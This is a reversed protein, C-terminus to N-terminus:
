RNDPCAMVGSTGKCDVAWSGLHMDTESSNFIDTSLPLIWFTTTLDVEFFRVVELSLKDASEGLILVRERLTGTSVAMFEANSFARTPRVTYGGFVLQGLCSVNVVGAEGDIRFIECTGHFLAFKRWSISCFRDAPLPPSHGLVLNAKEADTVGPSTRVVRCVEQDGRFCVIEMRNPVPTPPFVLGELHFLPEEEEIIEGPVESIFVALKGEIDFCAAEKIEEHELIIETEAGLEHLFDTTGKIVGNWRRCVSRASLRDRLDLKDFIMRLMENPLEGITTM